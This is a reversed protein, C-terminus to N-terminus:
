QSAGEQELDVRPLEITAAVDSSTQQTELVQVLRAINESEPRLELAAMALDLAEGFREAEALELAEHYHELAQVGQAMPGLEAPGADDSLEVGDIACEMWERLTKALLKFLDKGKGQVTQPCLIEATEVSTLRLAIAVKGDPSRLISGSLFGQVAQLKGAQAIRESPLSQANVIADAALGQSVAIEQMLIGRDRHSVMKLPRDDGKFHLGDLAEQLYSSIFTPLATALSELDLDDDHFPDAIEFDLVAINHLGPSRTLYGRARYAELIPRRWAARMRDFDAPLWHPDLSLIAQYYRQAEEAAGAISCLEAMQELVDIRGERSLEDRHGTWLAALCDSAEQYSASLRLERCAQREMGLADVDQARLPAAAVIMAVCGASAVIAKTTSRARYFM